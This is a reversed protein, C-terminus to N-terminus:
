LDAENRKIFALLEAVFADRQEHHIWHGSGKIVVGEIKPNTQLIKEYDAQDLHTSTEGRMFLTPVELASIEEWRANKHGKELSEIAGSLSFKWNLLGDEGSKLNAFLFDAMIHPNSLHSQAELFAKDFYEKAVQRSAFPVPVSQIMDQTKKMEDFKGDPGIDEICLSKLYKPWKFAFRMASRGGMSHGVLHIKQWGLEDLILKLDLAYDEPAYGVAPQFSQGHGRQDYTLVQFQGELQRVISRWNSGAGLLGHLFVIKPSEESGFVEYKFNQLYSM